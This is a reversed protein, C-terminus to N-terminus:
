SEAEAFGRGCGQFHFPGAASALLEGVDWRVLEHRYVFSAADYFALGSEV